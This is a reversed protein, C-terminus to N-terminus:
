LKKLRAPYNYNKIIYREGNNIKSITNRNAHHEQGIITMSKQSNRLDNLIELVEEKTYNMDNRDNNNRIPYNYNGIDSFKHGKNIEHVLRLPINYKNKIDTELSLEWNYKLDEKCQILEEESNFYDLYNKKVSSHINHRLPYNLKPNIYSYGKSISLITAQSVNYRNAIDILSLEHHNLLLDIVEDLQQQNLAAQINDVGRKGSANGGELINYGIKKDTANYKKIWHKEKEELLEFNDVEELITLVATHYKLALDCPYKARNLRNHDYARCRINVAQGIYIKKNDYTLLYIGSKNQPIKNINIIM